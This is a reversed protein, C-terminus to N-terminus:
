GESPQLYISLYACIFAVYLNPYSHLTLRLHQGDEASPNQKSLNLKNKNELQASPGFKRNAQPLRKESSVPLRPM